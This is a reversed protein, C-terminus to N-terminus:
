SLTTGTVTFTRCPIWNYNNGKALLEIKLNGPTFNFGLAGGSTTNNSCWLPFSLVINFPSYNFLNVLGIAAIQFNIISSVEIFNPLRWGSTFPAISVVLAGDIANNWTAQSTTRRWGLVTNGDYTSWDIVINKTYTQTGLEDTFRNTNGFVNNEALVTFSVNRGAELDGDDGTRFSTTQGTKMLQATSRSVAAPVEINVTNGVINVSNPTVSSVGDTLQIDITEVSVVQGELNSNVEVDSDPLILSGGSAVLVSYSADSNDVQADACVTISPYFFDSSLLAALAYADGSFPIAAAPEVQTNDIKSAFLSHWQNFGYKIIIENNSVIDLANVNVFSKLINGAADVLIVNGGTQKIINM